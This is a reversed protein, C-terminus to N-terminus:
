PAPSLGNTSTRRSATAPRSAPRHAYTRRVALKRTGDGLAMFSGRFPLGDIRGRTRVLGRTSFYEASDPM